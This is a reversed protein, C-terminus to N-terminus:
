QTCASAGSSVIASKFRNRSRYDPTLSDVQRYSDLSDREVCLCLM